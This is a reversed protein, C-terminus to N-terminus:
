ILHLLRQSNFYQISLYFYVIQPSIYHNYADVLLMEENSFPTAVPGVLKLLGGRGRELCITQGTDIVETELCGPM